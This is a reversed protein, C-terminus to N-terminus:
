RRACPSLAAWAAAEAWALRPQGRARAPVRGPGSLQSPSQSLHRGGALCTRAGAGAWAPKPAQPHHRAPPPAALRCARLLTRCSLENKGDAQSVNQECNRRTLDTRDLLPLASSPTDCAHARLGATGPRQPELPTSWTSRPDTQEPDTPVTAGLPQWGGAGGPLRTCEVSPRSQTAAPAPALRQRQTRTLTPHRDALTKRQTYTINYVAANALSKM